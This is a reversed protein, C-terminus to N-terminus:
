PLFRSSSKWIKRWNDIQDPNFKEFIFEIKDLDKEIKRKGTEENVSLYYGGERYSQAITVILSTLCEAYIIPEEEPFQRYVHSYTEESDQALIYYIEGQSGKFLPFPYGTDSKLWTLDPFIEIAQKLPYFYLDPALEYGGNYFNYLNYLETPLKFSLYNKITLINYSDISLSDTSQHKLYFQNIHFLQWDIIIEISEPLLRHQEQWFDYKPYDRRFRKYGIEYILISRYEETKESIIWKPKWREVPLKGYDYPFPTGHYYYIKFGDAFKMAPKNRAHPLLEKDLYIEKPKNIVLCFKSLPIIYPCEQNLNKLINWAESNHNIQLKDICYQYFSNNVYNSEIDIVKTLFSDTIDYIAIRFSFSLKHYL